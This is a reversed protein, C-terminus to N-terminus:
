FQNIGDVACEGRTFSRRLHCATSMKIILWGSCSNLRVWADYGKQGTTMQAGNGSANQIRVSKIDGSSVSLTALYEDVEPRCTASTSDDADEPACEGGPCDYKETLYNWLKDRDGLLKRAGEAYTSCHGGRLGDFSLLSAWGKRGYPTLDALQKLQNSLDFYNCLSAAGALQGIYYEFKQMDNWSDKPGVKPGTAASAGSSWLGLVVALAALSRGRM